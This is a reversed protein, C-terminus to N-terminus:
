QDTLIGDVTEGLDGANLLPDRDIHPAGFAARETARDRMAIERHAEAVLEQGVQDLHAFERGPHIHPRVLHAKQRGHQHAFANAGHTLDDLYFLDLARHLGGHAHGDLDLVIFLGGAHDVRDAASDVFIDGGKFRAARLPDCRKVGGVGRHFVGHARWFIHPALRDMGKVALGHGCAGLEFQQPRDPDHGIVRDEGKRDIQMPLAAVP